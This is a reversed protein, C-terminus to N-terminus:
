RLVAERYTIKATGAGSYTIVHDGPLLALDPLKYSGAALAWSYAGFVLSVTAGAAATIEVLPVVPMAGANRLRATQATTSAQLQVVTEAKAYLWPDCTGTVQVSAHAPDNYLTQVSLRGTGYHLPHDPLVFNVRQGHLKNVMESIRAERAERTGESSELTITLPRAGYVPWGDTLATSLDLPGQFRGPVNVLNQEVEPGPFKCAALTWLGHAATDYDGLQVTRKKYM